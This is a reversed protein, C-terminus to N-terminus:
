VKELKDLEVFTHILDFHVLANNKEIKEVEGISRTGSIRVCDGVKIVPKPETSAAKKLQKNSKQIRQKVERELQQGHNSLSQKPVKQKLSYTKVLQNFNRHLAKKDKQQEYDQLLKEILKGLNIQVQHQEYLQQFAQLKQELRQK